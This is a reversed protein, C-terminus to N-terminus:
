SGRPSDAVELQAYKRKGVRVLYSGVGLRRGADKEVRGEIQVGGQAVLRRAEGNSALSFARRLADLLGIAGAEGAVLAVRPVEEPVEGEQVVRRFHEAAREAEAGGHFREVISRALQQKLAMPPEAGDSIREARAALDRWEGM